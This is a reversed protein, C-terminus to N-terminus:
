FLYLFKSAIHIAQDQNPNTKNDCKAFDTLWHIVTETIGWLLSGTILFVVGGNILAHATLWYYWCPVFKQGEPIYDPKKHRNKGKAMADSQLSFDALAHGCLLLFLKTIILM